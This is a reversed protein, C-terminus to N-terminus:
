LEWSFPLVRFFFSFFYNLLCILTFIFLLFYTSFLLEPLFYFLSLPFLFLQLSLNFCFWLSYWRSRQVLILSTFQLLGNFCSELAFCNATFSFYLSIDSHVNLLWNLPNHRLSDITFNNKMPLRLLFSCLLHKSSISYIFLSFLSLLTKVEWILNSFMFSCVFLCAKWTRETAKTAIIRQHNATVPRLLM